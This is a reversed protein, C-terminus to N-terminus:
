IAGKTNETRNAAQKIESLNREESGDSCEKRLPCEGGVYKKIDIMLIEGTACCRYGNRDRDWRIAPCWYCSEMGKPMKFSLVYPVYEQVGRMILAM